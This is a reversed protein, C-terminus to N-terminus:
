TANSSAVTQSYVAVKPIESYSCKTTNSVMHLKLAHKRLNKKLLIVDMCGGEQDHKKTFLLYQMM